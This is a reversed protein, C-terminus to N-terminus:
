GRVRRVSPARRAPRRGKRPPPAKRQRKATVSALGDGPGREPLDLAHRLARIKAADGPEVLSVVTGSAGARATRGSRHVYDKPDDVPNWHVVVGVDDIHIGRAAVDTAVLVQVHGRRFADIARQRQPQSRSGHIVATELGTRSLQHAVRDAIRRTRCFVIGRGHSRLVTAATDLKTAAEVPLFTHAMANLQTSDPEVDHRAPDHQYRRVLADVDNDFTASWLLTQRTPSVEDLLRRVQPLFGMDAMRDAEDVVVFQVGSLDVLGQQHLDALRGPTAVVIAAGRRLSQVQLQQSAGGYIALVYHRRPKALPIMAATVQVALERTPVLVLASPRHPAARGARAVLPIAFALTKGSGTPARGCVDRGALADPITLAQIPFPIVIQRASLAAVLDDPVGLAGFTAPDPSMPVGQKIAEAM